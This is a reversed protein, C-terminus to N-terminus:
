NGSQTVVSTTVQLDKWMVKGGGKGETLLAKGDPQTVRLVLPSKQGPAINPGQPLTADITSVPTQALYLKMGLKVKLKTCGSLALLAAFLLYTTLKTSTTLTPITKM